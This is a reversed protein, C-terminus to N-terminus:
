AESRRIDIDASTEAVRDASINLLATVQPYECEDFCLIRRVSSITIM